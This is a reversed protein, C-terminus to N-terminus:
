RERWAREFPELIKRTRPGHESRYKSGSSATLDIQLKPAIGQADINPHQESMREGLRVQAIDLRASFLDDILGVNETLWNAIASFTADPGFRAWDSSTMHNAM